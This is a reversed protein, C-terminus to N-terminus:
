MPVKMRSDPPEAAHNEVLSNMADNSLALREPGDADFLSKTAHSDAKDPAQAPAANLM